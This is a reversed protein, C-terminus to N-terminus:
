LKDNLADVHMSFLVLFRVVDSVDTASNLYFPGYERMWLFDEDELEDVEKTTNGYAKGFEPFVVYLEDRDEALHFMRPPKM